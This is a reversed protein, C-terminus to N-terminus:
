MRSASSNWCCAETPIYQPPSIVPGSRSTQAPIKPSGRSESGHNPASFIRVRTAICRGVAAGNQQPRVAIPDQAAPRPRMIRRDAARGVAVLDRGVIRTPLTADAHPHHTAALRLRSPAATVNRARKGAVPKAASRWQDIGRRNEDTEFLPRELARDLGSRGFLNGASRPIIRVNAARDM